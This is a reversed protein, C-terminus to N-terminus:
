SVTIELAISNGLADTVTVVIEGHQLLDCPSCGKSKALATRMDCVIGLGPNALLHGQGNAGLDNNSSPACTITGDYATWSNVACELLTSDCETIVSRCIDPGPACGAGDNWISLGVYGPTDIPQAFAVSCPALDNGVAGNILIGQCNYALLACGENACPFEPHGSSNYLKRGHRTYVAQGCSPISDAANSGFAPFAAIHIKLTGARTGTLEVLGDTSEIVFPGVGGTWTIPTEYVEDTCSLSAGADFALVLPPCPPTDCEQQGCLDLDVGGGSFDKWGEPTSVTM